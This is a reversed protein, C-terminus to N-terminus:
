RDNKGGNKLEAETPVHFIRALTELSEKGTDSMRDFEWYLNVICRIIM